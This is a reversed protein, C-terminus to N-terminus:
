KGKLKRSANKKVAEKQAKKLEDQLGEDKALDKFAAEFLVEEDKITQRSQTIEKAHLGSYRKNLFERNRVASEVYDEYRHEMQGVISKINVEYVKIQEDFIKLVEKKDHEPYTMVKPILTLMVPLKIKGIQIKKRHEQLKRVIFEYQAKQKLLSTYRNSADVLEQFFRAENEVLPAVKKPAKKEVVKKKVNARKRPM